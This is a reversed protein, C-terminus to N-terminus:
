PLVTRARRRASQRAFRTIPWPTARARRARSQACDGANGRRRSDISKHRLCYSAGNVVGLAAPLRISQLRFGRASTTLRALDFGRVRFFDFIEDPTAVEFPYGGVWDVIDHWRSMGRSSVKAYNTWYHVYGVPNLRRLFGAIIKLERAFVLPLCRAAEFTAFGSQLDEKGLDLASELTGPRQLDRHVIPRWEQDASGCERPGPAHRWHPPPSGM